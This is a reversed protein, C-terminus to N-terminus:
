GIVVAMGTLTAVMQGSVTATPASMVASINGTVNTISGKVNTPGISSIDVNTTGSISVGLKGSIDIKGNSDISIGSAGMEMKNGFPDEMTIKQGSDDMCFTRGGPTELTISKDSEDYTLKLKSRSVFGKINNSDKHGYPSEHSASYVSGLIIPYRSDANLFGVIVEDDIEPVYYTGHSNSAHMTSLRAWVGDSSETVVPIDLKIRFSGEPDNELQKVKGIYLGEMAPLQGTTSPNIIDHRSDIYWDKEWGLFIEAIWSGSQIVHNVERIYAKGDFWRGLGKLEVITNPKFKETGNCTMSGTTRSMKARQFQATAWEELDTEPLNGTSQLLFEKKNFKDALLSHEILGSNGQLNVNVNRNTAENLQQDDPNWSITKVKKLQFGGDIELESKMIDTGYTLLHIPASDFDPKKIKIKDDETLLILGNIELRSIIFDWDCCGYQIVQPHKIKTTEVDKDIGYEGIIESFIENDKKDTFYKNHRGVTLYHAKNVCYCTVESHGGPKISVGVKLVVGEFIKAMNKQHYGANIIIAKGPTVVDKNQLEFDVMSPDGDLFAFEATTIKNIKRHVNISQVIYQDRLIEGDVIVEFSLLDVERILPSKPTVLQGAM